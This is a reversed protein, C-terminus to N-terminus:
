RYWLNRIRSIGEDVFGLEDRTHIKGYLERFADETIGLSRDSATGCRCVAGIYNQEKSWCGWVTVPDIHKKMLSYENLQQWIDGVATNTEKSYQLLFMEEDQRSIQFKGRYLNVSIVFTM